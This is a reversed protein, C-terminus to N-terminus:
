GDRPERKLRNLRTELFPLTRSSYYWYPNSTLSDICRGIDKFFKVWGDSMHYVSLNIYSNVMENLEDVNLKPISDSDYRLLDRLREAIEWCMATETNLKFPRRVRCTCQNPCRTLASCDKAHCAKRLLGEVQKLKKSKIKM